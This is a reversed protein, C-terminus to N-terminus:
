PTSASLEQWTGPVTQTVTSTSVTPFFVWDVVDQCYAIQANNNIRLGNDGGITLVSGM